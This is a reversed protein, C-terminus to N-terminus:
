RVNFYHRPTGGRRCCAEGMGTLSAKQMVRAQSIVIRVVSRGANIMVIHRHGVRPWACVAGDPPAIRPAGGADGCPEKPAVNRPLAGRGGLRREGFGARGITGIGGGDAGGIPGYADGDDSSRSM